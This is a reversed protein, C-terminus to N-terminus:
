LDGAARLVGVFRGGDLEEGADVQRAHVLGVAVDQGVLETDQIPPVRAVVQFGDQL